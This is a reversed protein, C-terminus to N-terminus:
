TSLDILYTGLLLVKLYQHLYTSDIYTTVTNSQDHKEAGTQVIKSKMLLNSSWNTSDHELYGSGICIRSEFCNCIRLTYQNIISICCIYTGTMAM